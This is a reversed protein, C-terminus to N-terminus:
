SAHRRLVEMVEDSVTLVDSLAPAKAGAALMSEVTGVYDGTKAHWGNKSGHIAWGLPTGGYEAERAELPPGAGLLARAMETNGHWGAWHLATQDKDGRVDVPWGARLMREVARTNNQMAAGVMAGRTRASLSAIVGPHGAMLEVVAAEDGIEFAQWLRLELPSREMLLRLAEAHGGESALMHPTKNWGFGFIYICGGARPDRKPFDWETVKTWVADPSADLHHRVREADGLAAAMLIDTETGHKVLARAVDHRRPRISVAYQAATSEHDIDRADIEAGHALLYEAIEVTAAFHLPLEGDGGRAHVLAPDGEILEKVRDFMGLRAAAHIDIYAGREILYPTLEKSVDLVGFGGAWWKTRANINAGADLLAEVMERNDRHVAGILAPADFSLGKLPEDLRARLQPHKTLVTRVLAADNAQIAGALADAPDEALSAVHAKLKPWSEFGHELALVRQADALQPAAPDFEVRVSAARSLAEPERQELKHLLEKAQKKLHELDPRPPLERISM